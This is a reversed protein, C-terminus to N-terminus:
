NTPSIAIVCGSSTGENITPNLNNLAVAHKSYAKTLEICEIILM